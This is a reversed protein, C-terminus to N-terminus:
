YQFYLSVFTSLLTTVMYYVITYTGIRSTDSPRIQALALCPNISLRRFIFVQSLPLFLWLCYWWRLLRCSFKVPFDSLVLLIMVLFLFIHFSKLVKINYINLINYKLDGFRPDFPRIVFGLVVGIVVAEITLVLLLDKKM